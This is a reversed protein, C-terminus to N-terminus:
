CSLLYNFPYNFGKHLTIHYSKVVKRFIQVGSELTLQVCRHGRSKEQKKTYLFMRNKCPLAATAAAPKVNFFQNKKTKKHRCPEMRMYSYLHPWEATVDEQLGANLGSLNWSRPPVGWVWLAQSYAPHGCGGLGELGGWRQLETPTQQWHSMLSRCLASLLSDCHPSTADAHKHKRYTTFM